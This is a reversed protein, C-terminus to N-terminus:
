TAPVTANVQDFIIDPVSPWESGVVVNSAIKGECKKHTPLTGPLVFRFEWKETVAHLCAAVVDFDDAAYYRSCPDAKSARTRQFDVRPNGAKDTVRLVNKCEITLPQGGRFRLRIDPSGDEDLRECDTVGVTKSLTDRLHEEAVWGRVAM